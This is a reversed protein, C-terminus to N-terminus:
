VTAAKTTARISSEPGADVVGAVATDGKFRPRKWIPVNNKVDVIWSVGSISGDIRVCVRM